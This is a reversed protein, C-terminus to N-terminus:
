VTEVHSKSWAERWNVFQNDEKKIKLANTDQNLKAIPPVDMM